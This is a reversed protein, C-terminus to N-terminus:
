RGGIVRFQEFPVPLEPPVDADPLLVWTKSSPSWTRANGHQWESAPIMPRGLTSPVKVIQWDRTEPDLEQIAELQALEGVIVRGGITARQNGIQFGWMFLSGSLNPGAKALPNGYKPDSM